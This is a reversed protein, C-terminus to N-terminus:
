PPAPRTAKFVKKNSNGSAFRDSDFYMTCLDDSIWTPYNTSGVASNIGAGQVPAAGTFASNTSTRTAVWIDTDNSGTPAHARDTAFYITLKDRSLVPSSQSYQTALEVLEKKASFDDATTPREVEYLTTSTGGDFVGRGDFALRLGDPTLYPHVVPSQPGTTATSVIAPDSWTAGSLTSKYIGWITEPISVVTGFFMTGTYPAPSNPAGSLPIPVLAVGGFTTSPSSRTATYIEGKQVSRNTVWFVTLQDPSLRANIDTAGVTSGNLEVVPGAFDFADTPRCPKSAPADSAADGGADDGPPAPPPPNTPSDGGTGSDGTTGPNTADDGVCASLAAAPALVAACIFLLTRM